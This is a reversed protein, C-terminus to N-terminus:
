ILAIKLKQGIKGLTHIQKQLGENKLSIKNIQTLIRHTLSRQM